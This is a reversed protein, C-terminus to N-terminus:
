KRYKQLLENLEQVHEYEEDRIHILMDKVEPINIKQIHRDYMEITDIEGRLDKVLMKILYKDKKDIDHHCHGHEHNDRHRHEHHHEDHEDRYNRYDKHKHM